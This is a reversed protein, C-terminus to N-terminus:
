ITIKKIKYRREKRARELKDIKIITEKETQRNTTVLSIQESQLSNVDRGRRTVKPGSQGPGPKNM